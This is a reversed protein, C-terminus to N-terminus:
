QSDGEESDFPIDKFIFKVAVSILIVMVVFGMVCSYFFWAPFGFIYSYDEVPSKGLGYAFGFWWLFHFVVLCVGIWAEKHAIKFRWDVDKKVRM